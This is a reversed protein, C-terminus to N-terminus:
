AMVIQAWTHGRPGAGSAIKEFLPLGLFLDLSLTDMMVMTTSSTASPSLFEMFVSSSASSASLVFCSPPKLSSSSYLALMVCSQSQISVAQAPRASHRAALNSPRVPALPYSTPASGNRSSFCTNSSFLSETEELQLLMSRFSSHRPQSLM